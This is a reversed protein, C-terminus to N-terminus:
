SLIKHKKKIKRYFM